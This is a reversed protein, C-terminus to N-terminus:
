AAQQLPQYLPWAVLEKDDLKILADRSDRAMGTFFTYVPTIDVAGPYGLGLVDCAASHLAALRLGDELIGEAAPSANFCESFIGAHDPLYSFGCRLDPVDLTRMVKREAMRGLLPLFGQASFVEDAYIISNDLWFVTRDEESRATSEAAALLAEILNM